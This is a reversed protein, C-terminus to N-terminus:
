DADARVSQDRDWQRMQERMEGIRKRSLLTKNSDLVEAGLLETLRIATALMSDWTDLADIPGPIQAFLTVGPSHFRDWDDPNFDGPVVLNAMSFIPRDSGEHQRHFINMEGFTLGAKRAAESLAIGSIPSEDKRRIYLTIVKEAPPHESGLGKLGPQVPEDRYTEALHWDSTEEEVELQRRPISVKPEKMHLRWDAQRRGAPNQRRHIFVILALICVGALLLILRLDDM